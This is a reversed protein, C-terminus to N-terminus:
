TLSNFIEILIEKEKKLKSKRTVETDAYPENYKNEKNYITLYVLEGTNEAEEIADLFNNFEKEISGTVIYKFYYKM